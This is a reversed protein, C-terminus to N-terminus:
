NRKGVNMFNIKTDFITKNVHPKLSMTTLQQIQRQKILAVLLSNNNIKFESVNSLMAFLSHDTECLPSINTKVKGLVFTIKILFTALPFLSPKDNPSTNV